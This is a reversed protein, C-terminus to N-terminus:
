FKSKFGKILGVAVLFGGYVVFVNAVFAPWVFEFRDGWEGSLCKTTWPLPPNKWSQDNVIFEFPWGCSIVRLDSEETVVVKTQFAFALVFISALFILILQFTIVKKTLRM